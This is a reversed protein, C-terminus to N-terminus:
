FNFYLFAAPPLALMMKGAGFVFVGSAFASIPHRVVKSMFRVSARNSDQFRAVIEHSSPAGFAIVTALILLGSAKLLYVGHVLQADQVDSVGISLLSGLASYMAMAGQLTEARFVVWALSVMTFTLAICLAHLSKAITINYREFVGRLAHNVILMLGHLGGWLVFNWSAGHWLGGLLMTVMLNVYRRMRTTKGGGLPIYLYNKLFSSLTIHWRRWFEIISTAKYPSHFNAPLKIGFLYALGMAMDAYASFDFYLQFAYGLTAILATVPHSEGTTDAVLFIPDIIQGLPDAIILKKALGIFLYGLGVVYKPALTGQALADIQPQMERYSVIPGAILQPFFSVFLSYREFSTLTVQQRYSDVLFAIQQFTYFSIALPLIPVSFEIDYGLLSLNSLLFGTYKYYGLLSLNFVLGISLLGRNPQKLLNKAILYNVCLSAVMLVLYQAHWQSYFVVSGVLLLPIVIPTWQKDRVFLFLGMMIPLFVFLFTPATFIM